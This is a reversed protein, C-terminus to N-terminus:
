LADLREKVDLLFTLDSKFYARLGNALYPRDSDSIGDKLKVFLVDKPIGDV